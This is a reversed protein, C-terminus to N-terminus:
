IKFRLCESASLVAFYRDDSITGIPLERHEFYSLVNLNLKGLLNM